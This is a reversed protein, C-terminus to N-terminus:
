LCLIYASKREGLRSPSMDSVERELRLLAKIKSIAVHHRCSASLWDETVGAASNSIHEIVTASRDLMLPLTTARCLSDLMSGTVHSGNLKRATNFPNQPRLEKM